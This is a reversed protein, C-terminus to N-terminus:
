VQKLKPQVGRLEISFVGCDDWGSPRRDIFADRVCINEHSMYYDSLFKSLAVAFEKCAEITEEETYGVKIRDYGCSSYPFATGEDGRINGHIYIRWAEVDVGLTIGGTAGTPTRKAIELYSNVNKVLFASAATFLPHESWNTIQPYQKRAAAAEKEYKEKQRQEHESRSISDYISSWICALMFILVLGIIIGM